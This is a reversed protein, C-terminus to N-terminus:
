PRKGADAIALYILDKASTTPWPGSAACVLDSFGELISSDLLALDDGIDNL